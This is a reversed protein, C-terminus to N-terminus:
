LSPQRCGWYHNIEVGPRLRSLLTKLRTVCEAGVGTRVLELPLRRTESRPAM